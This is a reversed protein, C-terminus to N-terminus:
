KRECNKEIVGVQYLAYALANRKLLEFTEKWAAINFNNESEKFM